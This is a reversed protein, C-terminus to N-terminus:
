ILQESLQQRRSDATSLSRTEIEKGANKRNDQSNRTNFMLMGIEMRRCFKTFKAGCVLVYYNLEMIYFWDANGRPLVFLLRENYRASGNELTFKPNIGSHQDLNTIARKAASRDAPSWWRAIQKRSKTGVVERGRSSRM